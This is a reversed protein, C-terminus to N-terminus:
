TYTAYVDVATARTIMSSEQCMWCVVLEKFSACLCPFLPVRNVAALSGNATSTSICIYM